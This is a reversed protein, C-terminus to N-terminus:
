ENEKKNDNVQTNDNPMNMSYNKMQEPMMYMQTNLMPNMSDPIMPNNMTMFNTMMPNNLDMGYMMPNMAMQSYMDLSNPFPYTGKARLEEDGHAYSCRDGYKCKGDKEYNKCKVIKYNMINKQKSQFIDNMGMMNNMDLNMRLEESGHAFQCKNGYQCGHDSNYNKCLATKYRPNLNGKLQSPNM